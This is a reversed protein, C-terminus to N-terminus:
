VIPKSTMSDSTKRAMHMKVGKLSLDLLPVLMVIWIRRMKREPARITKLALRPSLLIM